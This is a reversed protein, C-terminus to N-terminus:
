QTHTQSLFHKSFALRRKIWFLNGGGNANPMQLRYFVSHQGTPYPKGWCAGREPDKAVPASPHGEGDNMCESLLRLAVKHWINGQTCHVSQSLPLSHSQTRQSLLLPWGSTTLGSFNAPLLLPSPLCPIEPSVWHARKMSLVCTEKIPWQGWVSLSGWILFLISM